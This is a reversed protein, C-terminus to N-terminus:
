ENIINQRLDNITTQSLNKEQLFVGFVMVAILIAFSLYISLVFSKNGFSIKNRIRTKAEKKDNIIEYDGEVFTKKGNKSRNRAMKKIKSLIMTSIIVWFIYLIVPAFSYIIKLLIKTIM